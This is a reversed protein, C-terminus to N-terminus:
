QAIVQYEVSEIIQHHISGTALAFQAEVEALLQCSTSKWEERSAWRIILIVEAPKNPNLLVEKSIFGPCKALATTWIERDLQLYQERYQATVEIRLFEIVM